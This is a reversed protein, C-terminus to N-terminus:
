RRPLGDSQLQRSLRLQPVPPAAVILPIPFLIALRYSPTSDNIALLAMFDPIKIVLFSALSASPLVSNLRQTLSSYRTSENSIACRKTSMWQPERGARLSLMRLQMPEHTRFYRRIHLSELICSHHLWTSWHIRGLSWYQSPCAQHSM